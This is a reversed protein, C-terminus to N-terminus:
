NLLTALLIMSSPQEWSYPYHVDAIDSFFLRSWVAVTLKSCAKTSATSVASDERVDLIKYHSSSRFAM